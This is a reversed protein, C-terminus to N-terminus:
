RGPADPSRPDVLGGRFAAVVAQVRDRVELKALVRAVHSKVTAESVFLRGAIERNSLGAAILVLVEEERGSLRRLRSPRPAPLTEPVVALARVGPRPTTLTGADPRPVVDVVLRLVIETDAVGDRVARMGLRRLWPGALTVVVGDASGLEGPESM